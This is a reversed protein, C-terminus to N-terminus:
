ARLPGGPHYSATPWDGPGPHRQCSVAPGDGSRAAINIYFLCTENSPYQRVSDPRADVTRSGAPGAPTAAATRGRYGHTVWIRPFRPTCAARVAQRRVAPMENGCGQRARRLTEPRARHKGMHERKWRCHVPPPIGSEEGRTGRRRAMKWKHQRAPPRTSPVPGAGAPDNRLPSGVQAAPPAGGVLSSAAPSRPRRPGRRGQGCVTLSTERQPVRQPTSWPRHSAQGM